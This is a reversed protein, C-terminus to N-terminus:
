RVTGTEGVVVAGVVVVVDVVMAAIPPWRGSDGVVSGKAVL